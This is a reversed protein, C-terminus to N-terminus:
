PAFLAQAEHLLERFWEDDAFVAVAAGAARPASASCPPSGSRSSAPSRHAREALGQEDVKGALV